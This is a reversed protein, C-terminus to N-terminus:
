QGDPGRADPMEGPRETAEPSDAHEGDSATAPRTRIWQLYLGHPPATPGAAQRDRAALIRPIDDPPRRGMGVEVLTGVIIRVMNWLFGSGTIGFVIRPGRRSVSCEHITRVASPRGHGPRAFSTFDHEGVLLRAAAEMADTDLPQWRHWMLDSVFPCREPHNWIFYQYRKCVTSRRADFDAPAPEISRLLIDAPLRANVARRLNDPPVEVRVTDFHAVQGKAHVGADTRSSGVLTVPHGVVLQIARATTEQVTPIGEELPPRPGRYFENAPQRVWGHYRTGRYAIVLKYRRLAPSPTQPGTSM